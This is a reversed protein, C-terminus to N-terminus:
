ENSSTLKIIYFTTNGELDNKEDNAKQTIFKDEGIVCIPFGYDKPDPFLIDNSTKKGNKRSHLWVRINPRAENPFGKNNKSFEIVDRKSLAESYLIYENSNFKLYNLIISNTFSNILSEQQDLQRGFPIKLPSYNDLDIKEVKLNGMEFYDFSYINSINSNMFSYVNSKYDIAEYYDYINPYYFEKKSLGSEKLPFDYHYTQNENLLDHALLNAKLFMKKQNYFEKTTPDGQPSLISILISDKIVKYNYLPAFTRENKIKIRNLYKGKFDYRSIYDISSVGIISDNVFRLSKPYIYKYEENSPGLKNFSFQKNAEINYTLVDYAPFNFFLLHGDRFDQFKLNNSEVLFSDIVVLNANKKNKIIDINSERKCSFCFAILTLFKLLSNTRM